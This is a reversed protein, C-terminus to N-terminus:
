PFTDALEEDGDEPDAIELGGDGARTAQLLADVGFTAEVDMGTGYYHEELLPLIARGWIARLGDTTASRSTMLYSPGVAFDPDGIRANLADLLEAPKTPRGADTLWQRLLGDIPPRNPFFEVFWFRRRMAADIRAISRDATNMTGIVFLNEPLSFTADPSYQLTVADERYELLFYLEGFVKALNARNIEDIVLVYPSRPDSHAVEALRRLPGPVLEFSVTGESGPRPRFGEFFDEYTYSPHFQVLMANSPQPTLHDALARAVYTKSTGPPGYFILQRKEELDEIV